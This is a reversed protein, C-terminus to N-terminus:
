VRPLQEQLRGRFRLPDPVYPFSNKTGGIGNIVVMGFNGIRGVISQRVTVGEIRELFLEWSNRRIFGTKVLVRRNTLVYETSYYSIIVSLLRWGLCLVLLNGLLRGFILYGFDMKHSFQIALGVLLLWPFAEFLLIYHPRTYYLVEEGVLLSHKIYSM